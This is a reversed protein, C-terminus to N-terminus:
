LKRKKGTKVGELVTQSHAFLKSYVYDACNVWVSLVSIGQWPVSHESIFVSPLPTQPDVWQEFAPQSKTEKHSTTLSQKKM